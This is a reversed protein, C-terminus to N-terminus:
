IIQWSLPTEEGRLEHKASLNLAIISTKKTQNFFEIYPHKLMLALRKVAEEPLWELYFVITHYTEHLVTPNLAIVKEPSLNTLLDEVKSHEPYVADLAYCLINTDLGTIM